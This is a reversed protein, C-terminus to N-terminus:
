KYGDMKLKIRGDVQILIDFLRLWTTMHFIDESSTMLWILHKQFYIWSLEVFCWRLTVYYIYLTSLYELSKLPLLTALTAAFVALILATLNTM